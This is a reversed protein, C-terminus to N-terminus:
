ERAEAGATGNGAHGVDWMLYLVPSRLLTPDDATPYLLVDHAREGGHDIELTYASRAAPLELRGEVAFPAGYDLPGELPEFGGTGDPRVFRALIDPPGPAWLDGDHSLTWHLQVTDRQESIVRDGDDPDVYIDNYDSAITVRGKITEGTGVTHIHTRARFLDDMGTMRVHTTGGGGAGARHTAQHRDSMRTRGTYSGPGRPLAGPEDRMGFAPMSIMVLTDTPLPPLDLPVSERFFPTGARDVLRGGRERMVEWSFRVEEAVQDERVAWVSDPKRAPGLWWALRSVEHLAALLPARFARHFHDPMWDAGSGGAGGTRLTLSEMITDYFDILAQVRAMEEPVYRWIVAEFEKVTTTPEAEFDTSSWPPMQGTSSVPDSHSGTSRSEFFGGELHLLGSGSVPKTSGPDYNRDELYTYLQLGQLVRILLEADEGYAQAADVADLISDSVQEYVPQKAYGVWTAINFQWLALDVLITHEGYQDASDLTVLRVSATAPGYRWDSRYQTWSAHRPQEHRRDDFGTRAKRLTFVWSDTANPLVRDHAEGLPDPTTDQAATPLPGVALAAALCLCLLVRPAGSDGRVDEHPATNGNFFRM